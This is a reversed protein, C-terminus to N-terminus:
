RLGIRGILTGVFPSVAGLVLVCLALALGTQAASAAYKQQLPLVSVGFGGFACGVAVNQALFARMVMTRARGRQEPPATGAQATVQM